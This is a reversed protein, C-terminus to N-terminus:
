FITQVSIFFSRLYTKYIVQMYSKYIPYRKTAPFLHEYVHRSNQLGPWQDRGPGPGPVQSAHIGVYQWKMQWGDSDYEAVKNDWIAKRQSWIMNM